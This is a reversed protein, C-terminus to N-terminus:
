RLQLAVVLPYHDSPTYSRGPIRTTDVRRGLVTLSSSRFVYDLRAGDNAGPRRYWAQTFTWPKCHAATLPVDPDLNHRTQRADLVTLAPASKKSCAPAQSNLDGTLIVPYNLKNNSAIVSQLQRAESARYAACSGGYNAILHTNVVFYRQGKASALRDQLVVWALSREAPVRSGPNYRKACASNRPSVSPLTYNHVGAVKPLSSSTSAYSFRATKFLIYKPTTQVGSAYPSPYITYGKPKLASLLYAGPNTTKTSTAEQTGVIDTNNSAIRQVVASRRYDWTPDGEARKPTRVNYTMVRVAPKAATAATVVASASPTLSVGSPALLGGLLAAALAAPACRRALPSGLYRM